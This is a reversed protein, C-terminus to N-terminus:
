YFSHLKHTYWPSIMPIDHTYWPSVYIKVVIDFVCQDRKPLVCQLRSSNIIKFWPWLHLDIAAKSGSGYYRVMENPIGGTSYDIKMQFIISWNINLEQIEKTWLTCYGIKMKFSLFCRLGTLTASRPKTWSGVQRSPRSELCRRDM